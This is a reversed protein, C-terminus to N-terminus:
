FDNKLVDLFYIEQMLKLLHSYRVSIYKDIDFEVNNLECYIKAHSKLCYRLHTEDVQEFFRCHMLKRFTDNVIKKDAFTINPTYKIKMLIEISNHLENVYNLQDEITQSKSFLLGM